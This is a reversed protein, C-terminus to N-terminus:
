IDQNIEIDDLCKVMTALWRRSTAADANSGAQELGAGIETLREFGFMSGAGSLQHGLSTVPGFDVQDLGTQMTAVNARCRFLFRSIMSAKLPSALSLPMQGDGARPRPRSLTQRDRIARLLVSQKIPKTLFATCGASLCMERDGKLASATLAIIPTAVRGHAAEWARMTSTAALGDMVPMQRDMLVLDYQGAMFMECAVAGSEAIEVVYPTHELYALIITCNDPSDEALLIRLPPLAQDLDMDVPEAEPRDAASLLEFPVAFSFISGVGFTSEVWIRGGM